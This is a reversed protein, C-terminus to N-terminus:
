TVGGSLAAAAQCIDDARHWDGLLCYALKLLAPGRARVYDAFEQEQEAKM